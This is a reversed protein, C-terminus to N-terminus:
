QRPMEFADVPNFPTSRSSSRSTACSASRPPRGRFRSRRSRASPRRACRRFYESTPSATADLEALTGGTRRVSPFRPGSLTPNDTVYVTRVGHAATLEPLLPQFDYVQNCGPIAPMGATARWDRFPYSRM